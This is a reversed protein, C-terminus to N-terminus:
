SGHEIRTGDTALVRLQEKLCAPCIGHSVEGDRAAGCPKLGLDAQCWGCVVRLAYNVSVPAAESALDGPVLDTAILPQHATSIM